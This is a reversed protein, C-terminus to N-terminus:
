ENSQRTRLLREIEARVSEKVEDSVSVADVSVTGILVGNLDVLVIATSSEPAFRDITGEPSAAWLLGNDQSIVEPVRELATQIKELSAADELTSVLVARKVGGVHVADMAEATLGWATSLDPYAESGALQGEIGEVPVRTFILAKVGAAGGGDALESIRVSKGETDMLAVRGANEGPAFVTARPELLAPSDVLRKGEISPRWAAPDGPSLRTFRLEIKVGQEADAAKPYEITADKLRGTEAFVSVAVEATQPHEASIQSRGRMVIVRGHDESNVATFMVRGIIPFLDVAEDAAHEIADDSLWAAAVQPMAVPPFVRRMAWLVNTRGGTEFTRQFAVEGASPTVAVVEVGDTFIRVRGLDVQLKESDGAEVPRAYRVVYTSGRAVGRADSVVMRVREAWAGGGGGRAYVERVRRLVGAPTLKEEEARVGGAGEVVRPRAPQQAHVRVQGGVLAGVAAAILALLSPKIGKVRAAKASYAQEIQVGLLAAVSRGLTPVVIGPAIACLPELVFRREHMRPHPVHLGEEEIVRDGYLLLDLDITRPGWRRTESSRDRGLRREIAHMAELLARPPLTTEVLAASNLYPGGADENDKGKGGPWAVAATEIVPGPVVREVGPTEGLLRLAEAINRARDGLNAGLGIAATVVGTESM